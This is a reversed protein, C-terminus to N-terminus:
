VLRKRAYLFIGLAFVFSFALILGSNLLNIGLLAASEGNLTEDLPLRETSRMGLLVTPEQYRTAPLLQLPALMVTVGLLVATVMYALTKKM